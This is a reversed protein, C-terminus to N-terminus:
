KATLDWVLATGDQYGTVLKTGDPSFATCTVRTLGGDLIKPKADSEADCVALGTLGVRWVAVKKGDPSFAVASHPLAEVAHRVVLRGTKVDFVRVSERDAVALRSGDASLALPPASRIEGPVKGTEVRWLEKGTAVDLGTVREGGAVLIKGDASLNLTPIPYPEPFRPDKPQPLPIQWEHLKRAAPGDHVTVRGVKQKTDWEVALVKRGDHTFLSRWPSSAPDLPLRWGVAMKERDWGVIESVKRDETYTLWVLHEGPSPCDVSPSWRTRRLEPEAVVKKRGGGLDWVMVAGTGVTVAEKGDPAFGVWAVTGPHGIPSVIPKGTAADFLHTVPHYFNQIAARKGDPSVTIRDVAPCPTEWQRKSTALNWRSLAFRETVPSLASQSVVLLSDPDTFQFHTPYGEVPLRGLRKGTEGDYVVILEARGISAPDAIEERTPARRVVVRKGGAAAVILNPTDDSGELPPLEKGTTLEWRRVPKGVERAFLTRSDPSVYVAPMRTPEFERSYLKKGAETDYVSVAKSKDPVVALYKGDPTLSVATLQLPHVYFSFFTKGPFEFRNAEVGDLDTLVVSTNEEDQGLWVLRNGFIAVRSGFRAAPLVKSGLPQGTDADWTRLDGIGLAFLRKGDASFTLSQAYGRLALSGLRAIAGRPLPNGERDKTPDNPVVPVPAAPTVGAILLWLVIVPVARVTVM